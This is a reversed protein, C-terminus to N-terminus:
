NNLRRDRGRGEKNWFSWNCVLAMRYLEEMRSNDWKRWCVEQRENWNNSGNQMVQNYERFSQVLVNDYFLDLFLAL